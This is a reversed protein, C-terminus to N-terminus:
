LVWFGFIGFLLSIAVGALVDSPYHMGALIRSLAICFAMILIIIGLILYLDCFALAIIVASATHRSPFSQGKGQEAPCFPQYHLKDYPRERNIVKRLLTVVIFDAAPVAMFRMWESREFLILGLLTGLYLVIIMMPFRKLIIKLLGGFIPHQQFFLIWKQYNSKTM